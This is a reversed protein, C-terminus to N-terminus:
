KTAGGFYPCTASYGCFKSSCWWSGPPAYTFVGASVADLMKAARNSLADFDRTTRKTTLVQRAPTKTKTVIDLQLRPERGHEIQFAASYATLQTSTDADEQRKKRAATKFDVINDDVTVVDVFGIIDHTSDPLVIRCPKEVEAPQYAPAVEKAHLKALAAVQDKATGIVKKPGVSQEDPTLQYGGAVAGEFGAVAAAIIDAAPLDVHSEIKQRLNVEAGAHYGTGTLLAVGPPIIEREIYRRRWQEPCRAFMDLQSPSLHPKAEEIKPAPPPKRM